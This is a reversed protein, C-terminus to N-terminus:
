RTLASGTIEGRVGIRMGPADAAQVASAGLLGILVITTTHRLASAVHCDETPLCNFLLPLCLCAISSSTLSHIM